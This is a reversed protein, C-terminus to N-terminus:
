ASGAVEIAANRGTDNWIIKKEKLGTLIIEIEGTMSEEIRGDMFGRLPSALPVANSRKAFIELRHHSNEFALIVSKEDTKMQKLKTGNYTTFRFLRDHLQFGAIFGTFSKIIWPIDAVSSKLSIGPESFHNSQMWIYWSPFSRGWDKEIYGRGKNFDIYESESQLNGQISHDMSVIGHYCQMFPVFSYPGMIGPSYWPKPWHKNGEFELQGKLIPLNLKLSKESFYNNNISLEFVDKSPIFSNFDFRYYEATNKTGDLVQIFSQRNGAEDMAIGPIVAFARTESQNVMKFYWGEFYRRTKGWGQFHEPNFFSRLRTKFSNM